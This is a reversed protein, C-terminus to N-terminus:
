RGAPQTVGDVLWRGNRERVPLYSISRSPSPSIAPGVLAVYGHSGRITAAGVHTRAAIPRVSRLRALFAELARVCQAQSADRREAGSALAQETLLSCFGSADGAAVTTLYESGVRRASRQARRPGSALPIPPPPFPQSPEPILGNPRLVLAGHEAVSGWGLQNLIGPWPSSAAGALSLVAVTIHHSSIFRAAARVIGPVPANYTRAPDIALGKYPDSAEPSVVYGSAMKFGLGAQAQWLMSEGDIGVPLALVTDRPGLVRRYATTTFLSPIDPRSHWFPLNVAPWLSVIAGLALAWAAFRRKSLWIAALVAAILSGYLVFRAPLLQGLVPLRHVAAWPLPVSESGRVRLHGGLSCVAVILLVGMLLQVELRRWGARASLLIVAVLPLGLYAGGEVDGATFMQSTSLFRLGGLRTIDTPVVFGLLDNSFRDTLSPLVPLGGPKLAYYLYPSVLVATALYAFAAPGLLARVARWAKAGGLVLAVLLTVGAFLTFSVFVEASLSFQAVLALTLLIAFRRRGLEGALARVALHVIAPVLFVLSLNLHGVEQGLMYTSFGFLWGGLLSAWFAGTLRRCLLFAFFAALPPGLLAAINYTLLPGALATVPALALALGPMLTGQAIDIGQPAYVMRSFFPNLGHLLAHPWWVLGWGVIGEDTTSAVCLCTHAPDDLLPRGFLWLSAILYVGLAALAPPQRLAERLWTRAM